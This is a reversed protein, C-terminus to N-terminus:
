LFEFCVSGFGLIQIKLTGFFLTADKMELTEAPLYNGKSPLYSRGFGRDAM